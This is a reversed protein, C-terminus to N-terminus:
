RRSTAGKRFNMPAQHFERGHGLSREGRHSHRSLAGNWGNVLKLADRFASPGSRTNGWNQNVVGSGVDVGRVVLEDYIAHIDEVVITVVKGALGDDSFSSIHLTAGDRAIAHNSPDAKDAHPQYTSQVVFGLGDRYFRLAQVTEWCM